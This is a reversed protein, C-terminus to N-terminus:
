QCKTKCCCCCLRETCSFVLSVCRCWSSTDGATVASCASDGNPFDTGLLMTNLCVCFVLDVCLYASKRESRINSSNLRSTCLHRRSRGFTGTCPFSYGFDNRSFFNVRGYRAWSKMTLDCSLYRFQSTAQLYLLWAKSISYVLTLVLVFCARRRFLLVLGRM